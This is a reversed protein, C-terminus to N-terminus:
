ERMCFPISVSKTEETEEVQNDYLFKGIINKVDSPINSTDPHAFLRFINWSKEKNIKDIEKTIEPKTSYSEQGEISLIYCNNKNDRKCTVLSSNFIVKLLPGCNTINAAFIYGVIEHIYFSKNKPSFDLKTHCNELLILYSFVYQFLEPQSSKMCKKLLVEYDHSFHLPSCEQSYCWEPFWKKLSNVNNTDIALDLLPTIDWSAISEYGPIQNRATDPFKKNLESIKLELVVSWETLLFNRVASCLTAVDLFNIFKIQNKIWSILINKDTKAKAKVNEFVQIMLKLDGLKCAFQGLQKNVTDLCINGFTEKPDIYNHLEAEALAHFFPQYQIKCSLFFDNPMVGSYKVLKLLFYETIHLDKVMAFINKFAAANYDHCILADCLISAMWSAFSDMYENHDGYKRYSKQKGGNSYLHIGLKRLHKWDQAKIANVTLFIMANDFCERTLDSDSLDPIIPLIELIQNKYHDIIFSTLVNIDLLIKPLFNLDSEIDKILLISHAFKPSEQGYDFSTKVLNFFTESKQELVKYLAYLIHQSAAEQMIVPANAIVPDAFYNIIKHAIKKHNSPKLKTANLYGQCANLLISKYTTSTDMCEFEDVVAEAKVTKQPKQTSATKKPVVASAPLAMQPRKGAVKKAEMEKQICPPLIDKFKEFQPNSAIEQALKEKEEKANVLDKKRDFKVGLLDFMDDPPYFMDDLANHIKKYQATIKLYQLNSVAQAKADWDAKALEYKETAIALQLYNKQKIHVAREKAIIEMTAAAEKLPTDDFMSSCNENTRIFDVLDAYPQVLTKIENKIVSPVQDSLIYFTYKAIHAFAYLAQPTQLFVKAEDSLVINKEKRMVAILNDIASQNSKNKSLLLRHIVEEVKRQDTQTNCYDKYANQIHELISLNTDFFAFIRPNNKFFKIMLNADNNKGSKDEPDGAILQTFTNDFEKYNEPTFAIEQHALFDKLLTLSNANNKLFFVINHAVSQPQYNIDTLLCEIEMVNNRIHTLLEQIKQLRTVIKPAIENFYSETKKVEAKLRFM